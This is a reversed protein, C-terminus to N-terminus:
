DQKVALNFLSNALRVAIEEDMDNELLMNIKNFYAEIDDNKACHYTLSIMLYSYLYLSEENNSNFSLIKKIFAKNKNLLDGYDYCMRILVEFVSIETEWNEIFLLSLNAHNEM